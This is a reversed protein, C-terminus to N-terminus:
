RRGVVWGGALSRADGPRLTFASTVSIGSKEGAGVGPREPVHRIWRLDVAAQSCRANAQVGQVVLVQEGLGRVATVSEMVEDALMVPSTALPEAVPECDM